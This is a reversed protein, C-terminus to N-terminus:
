TSNPSGLFPASKERDAGPRALPKRKATDKLPKIAIHEGGVSFRVIHTHNNKASEHLKPCSSSGFPPAPAGGTGGAEAGPSGTSSAVSSRKVRYPLNHCNQPVISV